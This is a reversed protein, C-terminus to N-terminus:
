RVDNAGDTGVVASDFELQALEAAACSQFAERERHLDYMRCEFGEEIFEKLPGEGNLGGVSALYGLLFRVERVTAGAKARSLRGFLADADVEASASALNVAEVIILRRGDSAQRLVTVPRNGYGLVPKRDFRSLLTDLARTVATDIRENKIRKDVVPKVIAEYLSEVEEDPDDIQVPHVADIRVSHRLLQQAQRWWEDSLAAPEGTSLPLYGQSVWSALQGYALDLYPMAHPLSVNKIREEDARPLRGGFWHGDASWLLVGVPYTVDRDADTVFRLTACRYTTTDRLTETTSFQEAQLPM